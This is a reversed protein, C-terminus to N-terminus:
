ALVACPPAATAPRGAGFDIYERGERDWVHSGLGRELVLARPRYVPLWYREGLALLDTTNM